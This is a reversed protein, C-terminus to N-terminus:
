GNPVVNCSSAPFPTLPLLSQKPHPIPWLWIVLFKLPQVCATSRDSRTSTRSYKNFAECPNNTTPFGSPAHFVQWCSSGSDLWQGKFYSVFRHLEQFGLWVEQAVTWHYQMEDESRSYHLNYILRFALAKAAISSGSLFKHVNAMCHYFCMLTKEVGLDEKVLQIALAPARAADSMGYSIKLLSAWYFAVPHFQRAKDSIGCILVPFSLSNIKYTSDWHFMFSTPNRHMQRLLKKTTIGVAFPNNPGNYGISPRGYAISYGFSFYQTEQKEDTYYNNLLLHAMVEPNSNELMKCKRFYRHRNQFKKMSPLKPEVISKTLEKHAQSPTMGHTFLADAQARIAMTMRGARQDVCASDDGSVYVECTNYKKCQWLRSSKMDHRPTERCISCNSSSTSHIVSARLVDRAENYNTYSSADGYRGFLSSPTTALETGSSAPVNGTEVAQPAATDGDRLHELDRLGVVEAWDFMACLLIFSHCPM